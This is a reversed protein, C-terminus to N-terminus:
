FGRFRKLPLEGGLSTEKSAKGKWSYAGEEILIKRANRKEQFIHKM